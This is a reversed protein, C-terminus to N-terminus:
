GVVGREGVKALGLKLHDGSWSRRSGRRGSVPPLREFQASRGATGYSASPVLAGGDSNGATKMLFEWQRSGGNMGLMILLAVGNQSLCMSRKMLSQRATRVRSISQVLLFARCQELV